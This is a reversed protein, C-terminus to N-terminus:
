AAARDRVRALSAATALNIPWLTCPVQFRTEIRKQLPERPIQKQHLIRSLSAGSIELAAAAQDQTLKSAKIAKALAGTATRAM